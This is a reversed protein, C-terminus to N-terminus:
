VIARLFEHSQARIGVIFGKQIATEEDIKPSILVHVIQNDLLILGAIVKFRGVKTFETNTKAISDVLESRVKILAKALTQAIEELGQAHSIGNLNPRM